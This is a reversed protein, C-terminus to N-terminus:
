PTVPVLTPKGEMGLTVSTTAVSNVAGGIAGPTIIVVGEFTPGGDEPAFVVEVHEGEHAHLYQSLSTTSSWDQAYDLVATWTATAVDSVTNGGLGTWTIASSSPTLTVQDVHKRFDDPTGSGLLLEVNKMVLPKVDLVAM